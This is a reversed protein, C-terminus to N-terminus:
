KFLIQFWKEEDGDFKVIVADTRKAFQSDLSESNM